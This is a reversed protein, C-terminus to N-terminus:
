FQTINCQLLLQLRLKIGISCPDVSISFSTIFYYDKHYNDHEVLKSDEFNNHDDDNNITHSALASKAYKFKIDFKKEM